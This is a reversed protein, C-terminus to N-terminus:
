LMDQGAGGEIDRHHLHVTWGSRGLWAALRNGVFVSRHRGGTCGVAITLYSKGERQYRPLLLELLAEMRDMFADFDPDAAIAVEVPEDEGTMPRLDPDYHPNTLFRVDFVLDAERPVGRRYSFSTVFLGM